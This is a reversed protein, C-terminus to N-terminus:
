RTLVRHIFIAMEARSIYNLPNLKNDTDGVVMGMDVMMSVAGRAYDSVQGGDAFNILSGGDGDPASQGAARMARQTFVMSDQRTIPTEPYFNGGNNPTIGLKEATAIAWAYYSNPSVDPFTPQGGTNLRFSRCLMVIYEARTISRTPAYEHDNMGTVIGFHTLFDVSPAAWAHYTMDTFKDSTSRNSVDIYVSGTFSRDSSDYGTYSLTVRGGHEAKPIFTLKDLAPVQESDAYYAEGTNVAAGHTSPSTYDRYIRGVTGGDPLTNFVVRSLERGMLKSCANEFDSAFMVTPEMTGAYVIPDAVPEVVRIYVTGDFNSKETRGKYSVSYTGANEPAKFSVKGLDKRSGTPSYYYPTSSSVNSAAKDKDWDYDYILSGKKPTTFNVYDLSEGTYARSVANFDSSKFTVVGGKIVNYYISRENNGSVYIHVTGNIETSHMTEGHFTLMIDGNYGRKPVFWADSIVHSATVGTGASDKSRYFKTNDNDGVKTGTGTKSNYYSYLTGQGSEPLDFIVYRLVENNIEVCKENFDAPNFNVARGNESTYNIVGGGSENDVLIRITGTFRYGNLGYGEFDIYATGSFGQAPEFSVNELKPKSTTEGSSVSAYYRLNELVNTSFSTKDTNTYKLVGKTSDPLTFRVYDLNSKTADMSSKEFDSRRFKIPTEEPTAYNIDATDTEGGSGGGSVTITAAGTFSGGSIDVARYKIKVVGSFDEAPIFSVNDLYYSRDRYFAQGSKVDETFGNGSGINYVLKGRTEAPLEFAVYQLARGLKSQCVTNFDDAAFFVEEGVSATYSVDEASTVRLKIGGNYSMGSQDYGTYSITATDGFGPKPVFWVDELSRSAGTPPDVYYIESIGVGMGTDAASRYGYYLIGQSTPVSMNTIYQLDHEGSGLMKECSDMLSTAVETTGDDPKEGGSSIIKGLCFAGGAPVSGYVNASTNPIVRVTCTAQYNKGNASVTVTVTTEGTSKGTVEGSPGGKSNVTAVAPQRATWKYDPATGQPMADGFCVANLQQKGGEQVEIDPNATTQEKDEIAFIVVGSIFINYEGLKTDKFWASIVTKGARKFTIVGADSVTAVKEDSSKWTVLSKDNSPATTFAIPYNVDGLEFKKNDLGM